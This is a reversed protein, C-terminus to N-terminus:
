VSGEPLRDWPHGQRIEVVTRRRRRLHPPVFARPRSPRRVPLSPAIASSISGEPGSGTILRGAAGDGSPEPSLAGLASGLDHGLLLWASGVGDATSSRRDRQRAAM